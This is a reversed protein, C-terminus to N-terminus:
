HVPNKIGTVGAIAGANMDRGDMISADLEVQGDRNLVSGRGANFLPHDELLAVCHEVTDVATGGRALLIEGAALIEKIAAQAQTQHAVSGAGGHIMLSYPSHSM